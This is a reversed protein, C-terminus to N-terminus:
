KEREVLYDALILLSNKADSAPLDRIIEVAMDKYANMRTEAYSIGGHDKAFRILSAINDSTFDKEAIIKLWPAKKKPSTSELAYLLPLTIKGERIDNGSPKGIGANDFYDFIDDKIQFAYGLWKGFQRCKEQWEGSANATVAGIEACASLLTATKKELAIFYDNETMMLSHEANELQKIEGETMERSLTLMINVIAIMGSQLARNFAECLVFDGVLVAIRNDYVANLSPIGRRQKTEDVVDDHILSATHLLELWVAARVSLPNVGGCAQASLLLLLPRIHKGSSRHLSGVASRITQVDSRLAQEFDKRFDAFAKQVPREIENRDIM